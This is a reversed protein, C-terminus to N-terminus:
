SRSGTPTVRNFGSVESPARLDTSVDSLSQSERCGVTDRMM